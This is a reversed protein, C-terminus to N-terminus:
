KKNDSTTLISVDDFSSRYYSGKYTCRLLDMLETTRNDEGDM